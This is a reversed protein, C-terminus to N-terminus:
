KSIHKCSSKLTTTSIELDEDVLPTVQFGLPNCAQLKQIYISPFTSCQNHHSPITM